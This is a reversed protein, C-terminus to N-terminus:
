LLRLLDATKRVEIGPLNEFDRDETWIPCALQLTLALIDIDKPDRRGILDRATALCSRYKDPQHALIPLLQFARFVELEPQGLKVALRPLYKAVEFLTHQTSNLIFRRSFIVDRAAGGLFASLIPNADVVLAEDM